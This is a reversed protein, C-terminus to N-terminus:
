GRTAVKIEDLGTDTYDDHKLDIEIEKLTDKVWRLQSTTLTENIANEVFSVFESGDLKYIDILFYDRVRSDDGNYHDVYLDNLADYIYKGYRLDEPENELKDVQSMVATNAELDDLTWGHTAFIEFVGKLVEHVLMPFCLAQAYITIKDPGEESEQINSGPGQAIQVLGGKQDSGSAVMSLMMAIANDDDYIGFVKSMLDRYKEVLSPDIEDLYEKFIYFSLTGRIAGGQTVANIIRRKRISSEQDEQIENSESLTKINNTIKAVIDVYDETITPYLDRAIKVALAQLKGIYPKEIQIVQSLLNQTEGSVQYLNKGQMVTRLNEASKKNLKQLTEPSFM